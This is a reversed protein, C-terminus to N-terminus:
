LDKAVEELGLEILKKRRPKGTELNWDMSKFYEEVLENVQKEITVGALPGSKLPPKGLVRDPFKFDCPKLGERVNFAQRMNAIRNGVILFDDMTLDWSTVANVFADIKPADEGGGMWSSVNCLGTAQMAYGRGTSQTHRAPTADAIYMLALRNPQSGRMLRPDHMPLAQGGVHMAYRESGKGIRESAIKVGDALIEGFGERKAIKETVEVIAETNGWTLEIGGTDNKTILGNEYCEIAFAVTSGVEITDLGYNNCIHNLYIISEVDDNLCM